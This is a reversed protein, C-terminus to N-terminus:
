HIYQETFHRYIFIDGMIFIAVSAFVQYITVTYCYLIYHITVTISISFYKPSPITHYKLFLVNIPLFKVFCLKMVTDCYLM